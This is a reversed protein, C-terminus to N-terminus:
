QMAEYVLIIDGTADCPYPTAAHAWSALFALFAILKKM